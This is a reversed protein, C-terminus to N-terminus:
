LIAIYRGEDMRIVELDTKLGQALVNGHHAKRLPIYTFRRGMQIGASKGGLVSRCLFQITGHQKRQISTSSINGATRPAPWAGDQSQKHNRSAPKSISSPANGHQPKHRRITTSSGEMPAGESRGAPVFRYTPRTRGLAKRQLSTSTSLGGTRMM